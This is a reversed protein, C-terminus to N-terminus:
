HDPTSFMFRATIARRNNIIGNRQSLVIGYWLPIAAEWDPDERKGYYVKLQDLYITGFEGEKSKLIRESVTPTLTQEITFYFEDRDPIDPQARPPISIGPSPLKHEVKDDFTIRMYGDLRRMLISHGTANFASVYLSVMGSERIKNTHVTVQSTYLGASYLTLHNHMIISPQSPKAARTQLPASAGSTSLAVEQSRRAPAPRPWSLYMLALTAILAFGWPLWVPLSLVWLLFSHLLHGAVQADDPATSYGILDLVTRAGAIVWGLAMMTASLVRGVFM